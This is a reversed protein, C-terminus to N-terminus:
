FLTTDPPSAIRGPPKDGGSALRKPYCFGMPMIAIGSADYFIEMLRFEIRYGSSRPTTGTSVPSTFKSAQCKASSLTPTQIYRYKLARAWPCTKERLTCARVENLVVALGM